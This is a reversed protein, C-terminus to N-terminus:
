RVLILYSEIYQTSLLFDLVAEEFVIVALKQTMSGM